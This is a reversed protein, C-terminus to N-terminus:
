ILFMSEFTVSVIDLDLVFSAYETSRYPGASAEVQIWRGATSLLLKM